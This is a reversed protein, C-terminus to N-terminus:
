HFLFHMFRYVRSPSYVPSHIGMYNVTRIFPNTPSYILHRYSYIFSHSFAHSVLHFLAYIFLSNIFKSCSIAFLTSYFLARVLIFLFCYLTNYITIFTALAYM